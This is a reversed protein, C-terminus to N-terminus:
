QMEPLLTAFENTKRAIELANAQASSGPPPKPKTKGAKNGPMADREIGNNWGFGGGPAWVM